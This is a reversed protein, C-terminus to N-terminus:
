SKGEKDKRSGGAATENAPGNGGRKEKKEVFVDNAGQRVIEDLRGFRM